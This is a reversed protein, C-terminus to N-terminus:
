IDEELAELADMLEDYQSFGPRSEKQGRLGIGTIRKDISLQEITQNQSFLDVFVPISVIELLSDLENGTYILGDFEDHNNVNDTELFIVSAKEKARKLDSPNTLILFDPRFTEWDINESWETFRGGIQPGSLWDKIEKIKAVPIHDNHNENLEFSLFDVMMGACYRADSLNSIGNVLVKKKLM